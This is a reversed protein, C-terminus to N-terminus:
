LWDVANEVTEANEHGRKRQPIEESGFKQHSLSRGCKGHKGQILNSDSIEFIRSVPKIIVPRLHGCQVAVDDSIM